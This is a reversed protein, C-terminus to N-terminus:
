AGAPPLDAFVEIERIEVLGGHALIPCHKSVEVAEDEDAVQIVYYGGVTEKTETYPGDVVPRDDRVRVTHGGPLLSDSHQLRGERRLEETWDVYRQIIAQLQDAGLSGFEENGGRLLLMYQAM